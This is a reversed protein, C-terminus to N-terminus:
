ETPPQTRMSIHRDSMKRPQPTYGGGSALEWIRRNVEAFAETQARTHEDFMDTLRAIAITNERQGQETRRVMDALATGGNGDSHLEKDIQLLLNTQMIQKELMDLRHLRAKWATTAILLVSGIAGLVIATHEVNEWPM